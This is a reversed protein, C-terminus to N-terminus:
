AGNKLSLDWRGMELDEPHKTLKGEHIQEAGDDATGLSRSRGAHGAEDVVDVMVLMCVAM